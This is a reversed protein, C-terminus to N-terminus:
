TPHTYADFYVLVYALPAACCLGSSYCLMFWLSLLPHPSPLCPIISVILQETSQVTQSPVLILKVYVGHLNGWTQYVNPEPM